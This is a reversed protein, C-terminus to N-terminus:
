RVTMWAPNSASIAPAVEATIWHGDLDQYQAVLWYSWGAALDTPLKLNCHQRFGQQARCSTEALVQATCVIAILRVSSIASM